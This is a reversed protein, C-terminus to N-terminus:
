TNAAMAAATVRVGPSRRARCKSRGVGAMRKGTATRTEEGVPRAGAVIPSPTAMSRKGAISGPKKHSAEEVRIATLPPVATAILIAVEAMLSAEATPKDVKNPSRAAM